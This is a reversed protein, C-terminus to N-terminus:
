SLHTNPHQRASLNMDSVVSQLTAGVALDPRLNAEKQKSKERLDANCRPFM